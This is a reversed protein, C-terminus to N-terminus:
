PKHALMPPSTPSKDVQVPGVPPMQSDSPCVLTGESPRFCHQLNHSANGSDGALSTLGWSHLAGKGEEGKALRLNIVTSSGQDGVIM